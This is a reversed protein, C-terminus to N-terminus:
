QRGISIGLAFPRGIAHHCADLKERRFRPRKFTKKKDLLWFSSAKLKQVYENRGNKPSCNSVFWAVGKRKSWLFNRSSKEGYERPRNRQTLPDRTHPIRPDRTHPIYPNHTRPIHPGTTLSPNTQPLPNAIQPPRQPSPSLFPAQRQSDLDSSTFQEQHLRSSTSGSSYPTFKAYPTVLTSDWRYTATWNFVGDVERFDASALHTQHFPSQNISQSPYSM